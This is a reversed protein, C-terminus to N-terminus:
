ASKIELINEILAENKVIKKSTRQMECVPLMRMQFNTIFLPYIQYLIQQRSVVYIFM